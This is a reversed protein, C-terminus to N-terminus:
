AAHAHREPETPHTKGPEGTEHGDAIGVRHMYVMEGGKWGTFLMLGVALASLVLGWPLITPAPSQYRLFWNGAEIVVLLLNGGLHWWAANLDRIRRDGLLDTLGGLAAVLAMVIGAGLLWVTATVWLPNGNAWFALDCALTGTFFAIPFPVFMPHLPHGAIKATSQPNNMVDEM